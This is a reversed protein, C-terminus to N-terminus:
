RAAKMVENEILAANAHREFPAASQESSASKMM